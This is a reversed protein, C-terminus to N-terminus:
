WEGLKSYFWTSDCFSSQPNSEVSNASSGFFEGASGVAEPLARPKGGPRTAFSALYEGRVKPHGMKACAFVCLAELSLACSTTLM